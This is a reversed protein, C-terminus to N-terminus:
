TPGVPVKLKVGPEGLTNAPVAIEDVLIKTFPYAIFVMMRLSVPADSQMSPTAFDSYAMCSQSIANMAAALITTSVTQVARATM